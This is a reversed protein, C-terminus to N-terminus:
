SAEWASTRIPEDSTGVGSVDVSILPLFLLNVFDRNQAGLLSLLNGSICKSYGKLRIPLDTFLPLKLLGIM